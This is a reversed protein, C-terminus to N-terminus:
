PSADAFAADVEEADFAGAAWYLQAGAASYVVHIPFGEDGAIPETVFVPDILVPHTLSFADTWQQCALSTAPAGDAGQVLVQVVGVDANAVSYADLLPADDQCPGCWAAGIAVLVGRAGALDEFSRPEGACDDLTLTPGAWATV